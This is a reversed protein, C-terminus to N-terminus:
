QLATVAEATALNSVAAVRKVYEQYKPMAKIQASHQRFFYPIPSLIYNNTCNEYFKVVAEVTEPTVHKINALAIIAHRKVVNQDNASLKPDGNNLKDVLFAQIHSSTDKTIVSEDDSAIFGLLGILQLRRQRDKAYSVVMRKCLSNLEAKDLGLVSYVAERESASIPAESYSDAAARSFLAETDNSDMIKRLGAQAGVQVRKLNSSFDWTSPKFNPNDELIAENGPSAVMVIRHPGDWKVKCGFAEGLFRLPVVTTGKIVTAPADLKYENNNLKATTSNLPLEIQTSGDASKAYITKNSAEYKVEAGLAEFIGRLPALVRGSEMVPQQPLFLADGDVLVGIFEAEKPAAAFAPVFMAAALATTALAKKLSRKM